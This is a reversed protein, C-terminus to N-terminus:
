VYGKEELLAVFADPEIADFQEKTMLGSRVAKVGALETLGDCWHEAHAVSECCACSDMLGALRRIEWEDMRAQDDALAAKAREDSTVRRTPVHGLFRRLKWIVAMQHATQEGHLM